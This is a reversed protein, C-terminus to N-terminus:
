TSFIEQQSGELMLATLRDTQYAGTDIGIRHPLLEAEDAVTHGHVVVKELLGRHELFADRIWRTESLKQDAISVGPRVGAHVFAYDGLVMIEKLAALFARHSAPVVANLRETVEAYDLREYEEPTVGYSIMTERGGVRCFLRLAKDEGDLSRLMIEEHNGMLCHVNPDAACLARVREIVGASDPGRDVLDGLFIIHREAPGRAAHDAELKLLLRDLLDLRGHIDGIAYVRLGEEMVPVFEPARKRLNLLKALM